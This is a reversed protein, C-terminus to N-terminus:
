TNFGTYGYAVTVAPHATSIGTLIRFFVTPSASVFVPPVSSGLPFLNRKEPERIELEGDDANQEDCNFGLLIFTIFMEERKPINLECISRAPMLATRSEAIEKADESGLMTLNCNDICYPTICDVTICGLLEFRFFNSSSPTWELNSITVSTVALPNDIAMKCLRLNCDSIDFVIESHNDYQLSFKKLNSDGSTQVIIDKVLTTTNFDIRVALDDDSGGSSLGDSPFLHVPLMRVSDPAESTINGERYIKISDDPLHGSSLGLDFFCDTRCGLIELRLSFISRSRPNIRMLDIRYHKVFLLRYVKGPKWDGEIVIDEIELGPDFRFRFSDVWSGVSEPGSQIVVGTVYAMEFTVTLQPEPDDPSPIWASPGHLRAHKPTHESDIQTSADLGGNPIWGGELGLPSLCHGSSLNMMM